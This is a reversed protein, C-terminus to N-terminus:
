SPSQLCHPSVPSLSRYCLRQLQLLFTSCHKSDVKLNATTVNDFLMAAVWVSCRGSDICIVHTCIVCKQESVFLMFFVKVKSLHNIFMCEPIAAMMHVQPSFHKGPPLVIRKEAERALGKQNEGMASDVSWCLLGKYYHAGKGPLGGSTSGKCWLFLLGDSCNSSFDRVIQRLFPLITGQCAGFRNRMLGLSNRSGALHCRPCKSNTTSLQM